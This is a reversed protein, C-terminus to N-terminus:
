AYTFDPVTELGEVGTGPSATFSRPVVDTAMSLTDATPAAVGLIILSLITYHQTEDGGISAVLQAAAAASIQKLTDTYAIAAAKEANAALKLVNLVSATWGNPPTFTVSSQAVPTGGAATVAASLQTAHDQHQQAFHQAVALVTPAASAMPDGGDPAGLYQAGATYAAIAAWEASLLANLLTADGDDARAVRPKLLTAVVLGAGAALAVGRSLAQRRSANPSEDVSRARADDKEV